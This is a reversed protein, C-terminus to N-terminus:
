LLSAVLILLFAIANNFCHLIMSARVSGCFHRAIGFTVAAPILFLPRTLGDSLHMALWLLGTCAMVPVPGWFRRLGTWLWGRFFLEEAFPALGVGLVILVVRLPTGSTGFHSLLTEVGPRSSPHRIVILLLCAFYVVLVGGLPALLWRRRLGDLGAGTVRSGQGVVRARRWAAWLLVIQLGVTGAIAVVDPDVAVPLNRAAQYMAVIFGIIFGGLLTAASAALMWALALGLLKWPGEPPWEVTAPAQDALVDTVPLVM